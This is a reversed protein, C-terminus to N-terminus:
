KGAREALSLLQRARSDSPNFELAQRLLTKASEVRGSQLELGALATKGAPSSPFAALVAEVRRRAEAADGRAAYIRATLLAPYRWDPYKLALARAQALVADSKDGSSFKLEIEKARNVKELVTDSAARGGADLRRLNTELMGNLPDEELGMSFYKRADDPRGIRTCFFALTNLYNGNHRYVPVAAEMVAAARAALAGGTRADLAMESVLNYAQSNLPNIWASAAAYPFAAVPDGLRKFMVASLNFFIEDYGSNAALASKYAAVAQESKGALALANGLEYEANVEHLPIKHAKELYEMAGEGGTRSLKFGWFYNKERLWQAGWILIVAAAAAALAAKAAFGRRPAPREARGSCEGALVGALWWFMFAPVAFHLSVNLMNDALMGALAAACGATVAARDPPATGYYRAFSFFLAAFILLYLGAGIIGTQSFVEVVENHANNAHTRLVRAAENFILIPGQYFPYFMELLGWGKGLLPNELGMGLCGTWILMRQHWPAYVTDNRGPLHTLASKMGGLEEVRQKLTPHYDSIGGSPWFAALALVPVAAAILLKKRSLALQREAKLSFVFGMAAIAGIWSSRTMSALLSACYALLVIWYFARRWFNEQRIYYMWAFPLLMVLYSSLFNPNGFTSVARSGYPSLMRPWVWDIGFTQMIGYGSAVAGGALAVQLLADFSAERAAFWVVALALLWLATGYPDFMRQLTSYPEPAIRVDPYLAWLAGWGVLAAALGIPRSFPKDSIKLSKALQYVLFCNVATFLGVRLGENLMSPRFFAAHGFYARLWSALCAALWLLWPLDPAARVPSKRMFHAAALVCVFINLLTIQTYYPNRTLDTFFLLPCLFLLVGYIFGEPEFAAKAPGPATKTRAPPPMLGAGLCARFDCGAAPVPADAPASLGARFKAPMGAPCAPFISRPFTGSEAIEPHIKDPLM